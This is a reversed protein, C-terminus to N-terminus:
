GGGFTIAKEGIKHSRWRLKQLCYSCAYGL